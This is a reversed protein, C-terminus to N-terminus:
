VGETPQAGEGPTDVRAVTDVDGSTRAADEDAEPGAVSQESAQPTGGSAARRVSLLSLDTINFFIRGQGGDWKVYPNPCPADEDIEGHAGAQLVTGPQDQRFRAPADAKLEVRVGRRVDTLLLDHRLLKISRSRGLLTNFGALGFRGSSQPTADASATAPTAPTPPLSLPPVDAASTYMPMPSVATSALHTHPLMGGPPTDSLMLRDWRAMNRAFASRTDKTAADPAERFALYSTTWHLVNALLSMMSFAFSVGALATFGPLGLRALASANFMTIVAQPLSELVAHSMGRTQCLFSLQFADLPDRARLFFRNAVAASSLLELRLMLPGLLLVYGAACAASAGVALPLTAVVAFYATGRVLARVVGLLAQVARWEGTRELGADVRGQLWRASLVAPASMYWWFAHIRERNQTAPGPRDLAQLPTVSRWSDDSYADFYLVLSVVRGSSLKVTFLCAAYWLLPLLVFLRGLQFLADSAFLSIGVYLLDSACDLLQILAM